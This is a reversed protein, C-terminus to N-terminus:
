PKEGQISRKNLNQGAQATSNRIILKTELTEGPLEPLTGSLHLYLYNAAKYGIEYLPQAVTTLPPNRYASGPLDDFGIISIDEPIRRGNEWCAKYVGEAMTDNSAIIATVDPAQRFLHLTQLYGAEQGHLTPIHAIVLKEDPEIGHRKLADTYAKFRHMHNEDGAMNMALFAIRRHGLGILHEMAASEGMYSENNVFGIRESRYPYNLMMVPIQAKELEAIQPVDGAFLCVGDCRRERIQKLFSRQRSGSNMIISLDASETGAFASMGTIVESLYEDMLPKEQSIVVGINYVRRAGKNPSFNLEDIVALIRKRLEESVDTRNNVVRSVTAVSVGARESVLRINNTKTRRPM